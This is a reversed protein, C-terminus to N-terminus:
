VETVAGWHRSGAETVWVAYGAGYRTRIGETLKTEQLFGVDVNGQKSAWLVAELRGAQGLRINLSAIKIVIAADSDKM